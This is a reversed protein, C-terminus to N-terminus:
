IKKVEKTAIINVGTGSINKIIIDGIHIPAEVVVNKLDKMCEFIKEKPIDKETKVPVVADNGDKVGVSSTLIRTPNTCEKHAYTEGRKCSNGSVKTVQGNEMEVELPCGMPCGICIIERNEM